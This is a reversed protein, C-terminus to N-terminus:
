LLRRITSRGLWRKLWNYGIQNSSINGKSRILLQPGLITAERQSRNIAWHIKITKWRVEKIRVELEHLARSKPLANEISKFNALASNRWSSNIYLLQITKANPLMEGFYPQTYGKGDLAARHFDRALDVPNYDLTVAKM